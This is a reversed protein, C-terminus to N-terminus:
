LMINNVTFVLFDVILFVVKLSLNHSKITWHAITCHLCACKTLTLYYEKSELLMLYTNTFNDAYKQTKQNDSYLVNYIVVLMPFM